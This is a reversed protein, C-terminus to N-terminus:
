LKHGGDSGESRLVEVKHSMLLTLSESPSTPTSDRTGWCYSCTYKSFGPPVQTKKPANFMKNIRNM